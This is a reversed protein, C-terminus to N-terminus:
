SLGKVRRDLDRRNILDVVELTTPHLRFLLRHDAGVRIRLIEPRARLAVVGVFASPEGAALRGLLILAARSVPSPLANLTEHFKKPYELLRLPQKSELRTPELLSEEERADVAENAHGTAPQQRRFEELEAYTSAIERRMEARERVHGHIIEQQAEVKERLHRMAEREAPSAPPAEKAAARHEAKEKLRLERRLREMTENAERLEGAKVQLRDNLTRLKESEKGHSKVAAEAFRRDLIEAFPDEAPLLLQDRLKQMQGHLFQVKSKAMVPLLGQAMLLSTAPTQVNLLAHGLEEQREPDRTRLLEAAIAELRDRYARDDDHLRMLEVEPKLLGEPVAGDPFRARIIREIAGADSRWAAFSLANLWAQEYDKLDPRWGLREFANALETFFGNVGMVLFYWILVEERLKLPDLRKLRIGHMTQIEEVTIHPEPERALEAQTKGAVPSPFRAREQDKDHCCHKYKRGSGCHCPDNRSMKPVVRRIHHRGTAVLHNVEPVLTMIDTQYCAVFAEAVRRAAAKVAENKLATGQSEVAVAIVDPDEVYFALAGALARDLERTMKHRLIKRVETLFGEPLVGDHHTRCWAAVALLGHMQVSVPSIQTKLAHMLSSVKDGDMRWFVHGLYEGSPVLSVCQRLHHAEVRRGAELAATIVFAFAMLHGEEVIRGILDDLEGPDEPLMEIVRRVAAHELKHTEVYDRLEPTMNTPSSPAPQSQFIRGSIKEFIMAEPFGSIQIVPRPPESRSRAPRRSPQLWGEGRPMFGQHCLSGAVLRDDRTGEDGREEVLGFTTAHRHRAEHITEETVAKM